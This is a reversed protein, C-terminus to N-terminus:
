AEVLKLAFDIATGPGRSTVCWGCRCTPPLSAREFAPHCTAQPPLLGSPALAVAPAACIAGYWNGAERQKRLCAIVSADEGLREAGPMGGPIAVVDFSVLKAEEITTDALLRQGRACLVPAGDAVGVSALTVSWGARRLVNVIATAELEQAADLPSLVK